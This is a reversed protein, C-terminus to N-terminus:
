NIYFRTNKSENKIRWDQHKSTKIIKIRNTYLLYEVSLFRLLAVCGLLQM